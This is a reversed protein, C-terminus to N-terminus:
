LFSWSCDVVERILVVLIIVGRIYRLIRLATKWHVSKPAHDYRAVARTAIIIDPRTHNSLWLLGGALEHKPWPGKPEREGFNDLRVSPSALVRGRRRM